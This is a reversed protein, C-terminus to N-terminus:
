IRRCRRGDNHIAAFHQAPYGRQSRLSLSELSPTPFTVRCAHCMLPRSTTPVPTRTAATHKVVKLVCYNSSAPILTPHALTCNWGMPPTAAVSSSNAASNTASSDVPVRAATVATAAALQPLLLTLLQLLMAGASIDGAGRSIYTSSIRYARRARPTRHMARAREAGAAGRRAAGAGRGYRPSIGPSDFKLKIGKCENTIQERWCAACHM